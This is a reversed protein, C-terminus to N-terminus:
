LHHKIGVLSLAEKMDKPLPAFAEIKKGEYEFQISSAHLLARKAFLSSRYQAAYQRDILIPHGLEALHVRIQHTRGTIPQCLILSAQKGEEVVSWETIAQLGQFSSGWITQGNFSKKKTLFTDRVGKKQKFIGDALAFYKKHVSRESFREILYNKAEKSKALILVGTTDKDLRHVLFRNKGFTRGCNAEECVWGMPKDVLLLNEDEYLTRFTPTSPALLTQWSSELEVVDGRYLPASGFREIKNNVRCLNLSLAKKLSKGSIQDSVSRQLFTILKTSLSVQWKV